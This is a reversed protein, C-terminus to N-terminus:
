EIFRKYLGADLLKISLVIEKIRKVNEKSAIYHDILWLYMNFLRPKILKNNNAPNKIENERSYIDQKLKGVEQAKLTRKINFIELLRGYVPIWEQLEEGKYGEESVKEVLGFILPSDLNDLEIKSADIFFAERFFLKAANTKGCLDYCDAMEALIVAQDQNLTNAKILYSLAMEYSGLRKYCLGVKRYIESQFKEDKDEYALKYQELARSYVSKKFAYITNELPHKEQKLLSSFRKWQNVLSEGQEFPSLQPLSSFTETWFSCCHIAFVLDDSDLNATLADELLVKAQEPNGNEILKYAQSLASESQIGM